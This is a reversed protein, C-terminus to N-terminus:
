GLEENMRSQVGVATGPPLYRGQIREGVRDAQEFGAEGHLRLAWIWIRRCKVEGLQSQAVCFHQLNIKQLRAWIFDCNILTHTSDGIGKEIVIKNCKM